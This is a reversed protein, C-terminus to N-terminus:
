HSVEAITAMIREESIESGSLTEVMRRDRLVAVKRCTRVVEALESSVFVFSMGKARLDEVLNMIEQKAGVDIGRTPEDLLLLRPETLLWRALLAKQQNGGSLFQVPKEIDTTAINLQAVMRQALDAQQKRPISRLWGRRSQLVLMINERVSLEPVIGSTKRDEPCYGFGARIAQATSWGNVGKGDVELQGSDPRDCGFFLRVSESRGSGLLGALGLVEGTGISLDLNSIAGKQNLNHTTILPPSPSVSSDPSKPGADESSMERGIMHKVLDTRSIDMTAGEAVKRGNRLITMRDSIAYVQDLFHTVFVIGLGDAKLRNVVEFLQQVEAADLSSTPEDLVLVKAQVDLARAIAAMQQIAVSYSGLARNTDIKISLRALAQDARKRVEGWRIGSWSKPERGLCINEAVSLNPALNVEQYVTSIGLRTAESPSTPCVVQGALRISGQDAPYVGTMVKILTSKGAGNEGMLAHVEGPQVTFDVQDLAVMGPFTKVIGSLQLIPDSM